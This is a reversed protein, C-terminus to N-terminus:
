VKFQDIQGGIEKISEKMKTAIEHLQAGTENIKKAGASMEEMSDKMVMTANQLHKVEELIAKNGASMEASATRVEATSDNMSLLADGIQKSGETQETMASKIQRVIEDTEKIKASVTMFATNSESSATVVTDISEQIKQLQEGITKSQVSSTESLKRIEDAVVSFGKGADGAHAAEIAANMALLNTQSAIAAIAQNADQLMQSQSKIQEIRTNVDEQKASGTQANAQLDEFSNAMKEVSSNVSAINGIMEEVAASAQTVGSSQNEIMRELSGINSAIENVAGATQEVSAAQGTIQNHVSDINALIQTISSATDETSQELDDGAGTLVNKSHKVESIISHLKDTFSNFGICVDGVEDKSKVEIRKTLDADGSAIKNISEKVVLLPKISASIILVCILVAFVVVVIFSLVIYRVMQDLGSFFDSYPAACFVAWGSDDGVPMYGCTMDTKTNPDYFASSGSKGACVDAFLTKMQETPANNINQKNRVTDRDSSGIITGTKMDIISPYSNKGIVIKEVVESLMEGSVVAAVVGIPKNAKDFVPLSYVMTLKGDVDSIYPDSVYKSGLISVKFYDRGSFDKKLGAATYSMGTDDYYAVNVYSKDEVAVAHVTQYKTELPVSPDKLVSLAALTSLMKYQENNITLINVSASEAHASLAETVVATLEVKSIRYAVLAVVFNSVVVIGLVVVLLKTRLSKM